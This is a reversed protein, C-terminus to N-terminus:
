RDGHRAPGGDGGSAEARLDRAKREDDERAIDDWIRDLIAEDSEDLEISEDGLPMGPKWWSPMQLGPHWWEPYGEPITGDWTKSDIGEARVPRPPTPNASM